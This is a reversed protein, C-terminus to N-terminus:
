LIYYMGTYYVPITSNGSTHRASSLGWLQVPTGQSGPAELLINADMDPLVTYYIRVLNMSLLLPMPFLPSEM